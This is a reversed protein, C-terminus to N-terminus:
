GAAQSEVERLMRFGEVATPFGAYVVTTTMVEELEAVTAGHSLAGRLHFRLENMKDQAVLTAVVVLSRQRRTLATRSWLEGFAWRGATGTFAGMGTDLGGPPQNAALREIAARADTRRQADDKPEAPASAAAGSGGREAFVAQAARMATIARPFGAYGSLQVFVEAIESETLGLELAWGVHLRVQDPQNLTALQSLVVLERDAPALGARSWVDGFAWEIAYSGLAGLEAELAAAATTAAQESGHLRQMTALGRARREAQTLDTM